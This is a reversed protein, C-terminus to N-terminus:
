NSNVQLNWFKQYLNKQKSHLLTEPNGSAKIVGEELVLVEDCNKCTTMRHTIFIVIANKKIELLLQMIADEKEADLQNTGEDMIVIPKKQILVRAIELLQSQGGSLELDEGIIQDLSNISKDLGVKKIV